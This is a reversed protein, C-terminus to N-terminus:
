FCLSLSAQRDIGREAQRMGKAGPCYYGPTSSNTVPPRDSFVAVSPLLASLLAVVVSDERFEEEPAAQFMSDLTVMYFIYMRTCVHM